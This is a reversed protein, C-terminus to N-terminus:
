FDYSIATGAGWDPSANSFGRIVYGQLKWQKDLKDSAFLTLEKRPDNSDTTKQRAYLRAGANVDDNVKYSFGLAAYIVNNFDTTATDGIVKYGLTAFPTWAGALKYLDLQGYYDTEGSGLGKKEDATPLKVKGTVNLLLGADADYWAQYGASLLVDGLGSGTSTGGVYGLEPLVGGGGSIRLYPVTASLTWRGTRQKLTFPVYLIDTNSTQGYDGSLYTVGTSFTLKDAAPAGATWLLLAGAAAATLRAHNPHKM